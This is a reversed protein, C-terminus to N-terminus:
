CMLRLEAVGDVPCFQQVFYYNCRQGIAVAAWRREAVIKDELKGNDNKPASQRQSGDLCVGAM